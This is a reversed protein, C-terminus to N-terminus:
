KLRVAHMVSIAKQLSMSCRSGLERCAEELETEFTGWDSSTMIISAGRAPLVVLTGQTQDDACVPLGLVPVCTREQQPLLLDIMEAESLKFTATSILHSCGGGESMPYFFACTTAEQITVCGSISILLNALLLWLLTKLM